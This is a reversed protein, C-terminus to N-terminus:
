AAREVRKGSMGVPSSLAIAGADSLPLAFVGRETLRHSPRAAPAVAWASWTVCPVPAADHSGTRPDCGHDPCVRLSGGRVRLATALPALLDRDAQEIAAVKAPADHEHAAEDPAGVHVVVHAAGAKLAALAADAKAALDSGPRGTAGTPVVVTAGMLRAIGAAAGRAAVVTTAADLV